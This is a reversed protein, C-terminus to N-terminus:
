GSKSEGHAITARIFDVTGAFAGMEAGPRWALARAILAAHPASPRAQTWRAAVPKSVITGHRLTYLVRCMTLIAYAQYADDRLRAPDDLMPTWWERLTARVAGCLEDPSVPDILQALPPGAVVAPHERLVDRHIIWDPEEPSLYFRGENVCPRAPNNPEYRRLASRPLYRGELKLAWHSGSAWLRTHMAELAAIGERDIEGATVVLFDIDSTAPDFDGLALSGYGYLGVFNERLVGRAAALLRQLTNSVEPHMTLHIGAQAPIVSPAEFVKRM